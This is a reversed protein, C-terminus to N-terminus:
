QNRKKSVKEWPKTTVSLTITALCVPTTKFPNACQPKATSFTWANPIKCSLTARHQIPIGGTDGESKHCTSLSSKVAKISLYQKLQVILCLIGFSHIFFGDALIVKYLELTDRPGSCSSRPDMPEEGKGWRLTLLSYSSHVSGFAIIVLLCFYSTLVKGWGLPTSVVADQQIYMFVSM